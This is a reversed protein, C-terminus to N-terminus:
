QPAGGKIWAAILDRTAQDMPIAMPMDKKEVVRNFIKDKQALAVSYVMYDSPNPKGAGHCMTCKAKFVPAIDKSFNPVGTVSAVPSTAEFRAGIKAGSNSVCGVPQM